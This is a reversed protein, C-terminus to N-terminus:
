IEKEGFNFTKVKLKGTSVDLIITRGYSGGTEEATIPIELEALKKKAAETNRKGIHISKSNTIDPFMNAGGALKARIYKKMAGQKIMENILGVIGTDVFKALNSRSSEKAETISPLMAHSIGGIKKYPEYLVVGVCSGLAQTEILDDGKGVAFEAMSVHIKQAM